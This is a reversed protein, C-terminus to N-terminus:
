AVIDFSPDLHTPVDHHFRPSRRPTIVISSHRVHSTLIAVVAAEPFSDLRPTVNAHASLAPRYPSQPLPDRPTTLNSRPIKKAKYTTEFSVM